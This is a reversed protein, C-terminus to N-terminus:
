AARRVGILGEFTGRVTPDANALAAEVAGAGEDLTAMSWQGFTPAAVERDHLVVLARHRDDRRIRTLTADITQARGELVQLFRKGDSWLLGHLGDRQNNRRSVSLINAMTEPSVFQRASSVYLLQRM